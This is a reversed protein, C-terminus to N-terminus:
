LFFIHAAAIFVQEIIAAIVLGGGPLCVTGSCYTACAFYLTSPSPIRAVGHSPGMCRVLALRQLTCMAFGSGEIFGLVYITSLGVCWTQGHFHDINEGTEPM